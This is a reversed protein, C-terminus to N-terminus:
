IMIFTIIGTIILLTACLWMWKLTKIFDDHTISQIILLFNGNDDIKKIKYTLIDFLNNAKVFQKAILLKDMIWNEVFTTDSVGNENYEYSINHPDFKGDVIYPNLIAYMRNYWDLKFNTNCLNSLNELLNEQKYIRKLIKIYKFHTFFM